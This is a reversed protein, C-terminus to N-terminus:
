RFVKRMCEVTHAPKSHGHSRVPENRPAALQLANMPVCMLTPARRRVNALPSEFHL